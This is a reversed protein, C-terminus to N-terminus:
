AVAAMHGRMHQLYLEELATASLSTPDLTTILRGQRMIGVRSAIERARFLDHTTMLVACGRESLLNLLQSFEYSAEPDLGSTPEDLLLVGADRAMAAAIGVKQRMGKSYTGLRRDIAGEPLGAQLLYTRLAAQSHQTGSLASLYALNELGTLSSYLVVQEPIYAIHRRAAMPDDAVTQGGVRAEGADPSVFGLFLNITTTKGAGNPGLLCFIEGPAIELNLDDVAVHSGYTKTLHLAQLMILRTTPSTIDSTRRIPYDEMHSGWCLAARSRCVAIHEPPTQTLFIADTDIALADNRADTHTWAGSISLSTRLLPLEPGDITWEIGRADINRSGVPMDYATIFTEIRV